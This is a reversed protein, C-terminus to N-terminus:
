EMRGLIEMITVCHEQAQQALRAFVIGHEPETAQREFHEWLQRERHYCKELIRRQNESGQPLQGLKIKEGRLRCIGKMCAICKQSEQQLRKMQEAERGTFIRSLGQYAVANEQATLMWPKLNQKGLPPMTEKGQVRQWVRKQLDRDLEEM